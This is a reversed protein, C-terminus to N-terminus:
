HYTDVLVIKGAATGDRLKESLERTYEVPDIDSIGQNEFVKKLRQDDVIAGNLSLYQMVKRPIEVNPRGGQERMLRAIQLVRSVFLAEPSLAKVLQGDITFISTDMSEPDAPFVDVHMHTGVNELAMDLGPYQVFDDPSRDPRAENGKRQFLSHLTELREDDLPEEGSHYDDDGPVPMAMRVQDYSAQDLACDIDMMPMQPVKKGRRELHLRLATGGVLISEPLAQSLDKVTARTNKWEDEPIEPLEDYVSGVSDSFVSAIEGSQGSELEVVDDAM